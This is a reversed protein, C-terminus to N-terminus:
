VCTFRVRVFLCLASHLILVLVSEAKACSMGRAFQYNEGYCKSFIAPSVLAAASPPPLARAPIQFPEASQLAKRLALLDEVSGAAASPMERGSAGDELRRKRSDGSGSAPSRPAVSGNATPAAASSSSSASAAPPAAMAVSSAAVASAPVSAAAAAAASSTSGAAAVASAPASAAPPEMRQYFLMYASNPKQFDQTYFFNAKEDWVQRKEIGGFTQASLESEDFYDVTSDNFHYWRSGAVRCVYFDSWVFGIVEGGSLCVHTGTRRASRRMATTIAQTARAPTCWCEWWSMSTIGRIATRRPPRLRRLRPAPLRPLPLLFRNAKLCVCCVMCLVCATLMSSHLPFCVYFM